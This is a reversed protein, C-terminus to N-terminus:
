PLNLAEPSNLGRYTGARSRQKRGGGELTPDRSFDFVSMQGIADENIKRQASV